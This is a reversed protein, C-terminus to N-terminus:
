IKAPDIIGPRLGIDSLDNKVFKIMSKTGNVLM